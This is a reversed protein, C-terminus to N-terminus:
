KRYAMTFQVTAGGSPMQVASSAVNSGTAYIKATSTSQIGEIYTYTRSSPWTITAIRIPGIYYPDAFSFPFGGIVIDGTGTAATITITGILIVLAGIETYSGTQTTYTTTGATTGGYLTPTWSAASTYPITSFASTGNGFLLGTLSTAGTGGNAVGLTGGLTLTSGSGSTTLGTSGGTITITNSSPTATGSDGAVSTAIGLAGLSQFSPNASSGNSMLIYGSTSSPAINSISNNAGGVLLNYQTPQLNIANNFAM